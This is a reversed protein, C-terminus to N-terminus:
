LIVHSMRCFFVTCTWYDSCLYDLLDWYYYDSNKSHTVLIELFKFLYIIIISFNLDHVLHM